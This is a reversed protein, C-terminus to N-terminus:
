LREECRFWDFFAMKTHRCFRIPMKKFVNLVRATCLKIYTLSHDVRHQLDWMARGRGDPAHVGRPSVVAARWETSTRAITAVDACCCSAVRSDRLRACGFDTDTPAACHIRRGNGDVWETRNEM